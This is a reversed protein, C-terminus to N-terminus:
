ELEIFTFSEKEIEIIREEFETMQETVTNLKEVVDANAEKLAEVEAVIAGMYYPKIESHCEENSLNIRIKDSAIMVGDANYWDIQYDWGIYREVSSSAGYYTWTDTTEDYKALALWTPQYKRGYEDTKLDTLVEPDTQGSLHEIYGAADNPAYTRLTMYYSNADGGTGVNQKTFVADAPCMVRIEKERYDILTGVPTDTIEYKVKEYLHECDAGCKEELIEIKDEIDAIQEALAVTESELGTVKETIEADVAELSDVRETLEELEATHDKGLAVFETGDFKYCIKGVVYLIDEDGESVDPLEDLYVVQEKNDGKMLVFSGDREVFGLMKRDRCYMWAPYSITGNKIANLINQYNGAGFIPMQAM